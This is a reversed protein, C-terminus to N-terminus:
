SGTLEDVIAWTATGVIGDAVLDHKSQMRKVLEVTLPGYISDVNAQGLLGEKVLAMQVLEVPTGSMYPLQLSLVVEHSDHASAHVPQDGKEDVTPVGFAAPTITVRRVVIDLILDWNNADILKKLEDMRYVTDRLRIIRNGSLWARRVSVYRAVWEHESPLAAFGSSTAWRITSFSGHVLGDYVTAIGLPTALGTQGALQINAALRNAPLWYASDFFRDQVQHMTPDNGARKLIARLNMDSDLSFDRAQLARLFPQLSTGFMAGPAGCYSSILTFLNGSALTTQSRGYTLHGPDKPDVVVGSYDGLLRGTEFINVIAKATSAQLDNM